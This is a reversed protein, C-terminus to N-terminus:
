VLMLVLKFRREKITTNLVVDNNAHQTDFGLKLNGFLCKGKEM